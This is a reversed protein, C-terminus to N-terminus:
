PHNLTVVAAQLEERQMARTLQFTDWLALLPAASLFLLDIVHDISGDLVLSETLGAVVLLLSGLTGLWAASVSPGIALRLGCALPLLWGVVGLTALNEVARPGRTMVTLTVSGVAFAPVLLLKWAVGRALKPLRARSVALGCDACLGPLMPDACEHCHFRGCRSCVAEATKKPHLACHCGDDTQFWGDFPDSM